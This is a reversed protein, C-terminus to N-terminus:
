QPPTAIGALLRPAISQVLFRSGAESLHIADTQIIDDATPGVRTLCGEGNCLVRWASIYEVGEAESLRQMLDDDDGGSVGSAIRQPDQHQFRYANVIALPLTRKWRPVPGLVVIHPIGLAKLQRLTQKFRELDHDHSWGAHLLLIDPRSAKVSALVAEGITDCRPNTGTALIPACQAAEFRALRFSATEQIKRLGPYLAAATSDGWVFLLPKEGAEICNPGFSIDNLKYLFCADSFGANLQPALRAVARIEPPFRFEFGSAVSTVVGAIALAGLATVLKPVAGPARRIPTEVLRYTLWALLISLAVALVLELKTPEGNQLTALYSLLPWHWLYLPYSILGFWVMLRSSLVKRNIWSGGSVIILLAGLTPLLAYLGPFPISRQYLFSAGGILAIGAFGALDARRGSNALGGKPRNVFHYAALGGVLLEWARPIPAYFSWQSHGLYVLLSTAFSVAAIGVIWSSKIRAGALMLVLPWVIYFQEEIGLSWLHLLPNEAMDPDFYGVHRLQFLNSVFAAGAVINDGLLAFDQPMLLLWGLAYTALLVVALAPFIRRVRRAYFDLLRFRGSRIQSLIIRSILFGSIVFFIDVGIFGGPVFRPGAHYAVVALISIARLGDIDARYLATDSRPLEVIPHSALHQSRIVFSTDISGIPAQGCVSWGGTLRLLGALVRQPASQWVPAERRLKNSASVRCVSVHLTQSQGAIRRPIKLFGLWTEGGKAACFVDLFRKPSEQFQPGAAESVRLKTRANGVMM